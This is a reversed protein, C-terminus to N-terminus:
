FAFKRGTSAGSKIFDSLNFCWYKRDRSLTVHLYRSRGFPYNVNSFTLLKIIDRSQMNILITYIKETVTEQPSTTKIWSVTM